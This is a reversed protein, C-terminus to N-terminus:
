GAAASRVKKRTAGHRKIRQHQIIQTFTSQKSLLHRPDVQFGPEDARTHGISLVRPADISMLLTKLPPGEFRLAVLKKDRGFHDVFKRVGAEASALLCEIENFVQRLQHYILFDRIECPNQYLVPYHRPGDSSVYNVDGDRRNCRYFIKQAPIDPM